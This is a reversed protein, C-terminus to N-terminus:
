DFRPQYGSVLTIKGNKFGVAANPIVEGNGLHATANLILISKTQKPAPAYQGWM